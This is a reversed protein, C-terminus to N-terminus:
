LKKLIEDAQTYDDIAYDAHHLLDKNFENKIAVLTMGAKKAAKFGTISDEFVLCESPKVNLKEAAHLFVAPDPKAKNGVHEMSYINNGFFSKFNLKESLLNLAPINSNTGISTPIMKEQLKKHFEPFGNIFNIPYKQMYELSLMTKQTVLENISEKFNFEEKMLTSANILGGGSSNSLKNLFTPSYKTIGRNALYDFIIKKWLTETNIITGDMDFIVAKIKNNEM